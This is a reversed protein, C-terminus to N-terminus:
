FIRVEFFDRLLVAIVPALLLLWGAFYAACGPNIKNKGADLVSPGKLSCMTDPYWILLFPFLCFLATIFVFGAEHNYVAYTIYLGIVVLSLFKGIM